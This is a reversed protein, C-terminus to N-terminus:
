FHLDLFRTITEKYSKASSLTKGNKMSFSFENGGAYRQSKVFRKNVLFSRHIRLFEDPNLVAELDNMTSRYLHQKEMTQLIVYNGATELYVLDDVKVYIERGKERLKITTWHEEDAQQYSSLLNMMQENLSASRKMKLQEKALNVAEDFRDQEFPKLLYDIAHVKFADLAYQDFATTFIIVPAKKLQLRELVSFGNAGPMQVDLFVLDPAREKIVEVAQDANKAEGVLSVEDHEELLKIIRQRALFEDDVIVAKINM